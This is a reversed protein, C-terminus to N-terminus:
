GMRYRQKKPTYQMKLQVEATLFVCTSLFFQAQTHSFKNLPSFQLELALIIIVIKKANLIMFEGEKSIAFWEYPILWQVNSLCRIGWPASWFQCKVRSFHYVAHFNPNWFQQSPEMELIMLVNRPMSFWSMRILYASICVNQFWWNESDMLYIYIYWYYRVLRRRFNWSLFGIPSTPQQSNRIASPIWQNVSLHNSKHKNSHNRHSCHDGWGCSSSQTHHLAATAAIYHLQLQPTTYNTYHMQLWITSTDHAQHLTINPPAIYHLRTYHLIAYNYRHNYNYTCHLTTCSLTTYHLTSCHLTTSHLITSHLTTPHQTTYCVTTYHLTTYQLATYHLTSYHLTTYHPTTYHLPINKLLTYQLATYHLM